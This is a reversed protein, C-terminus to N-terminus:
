LSVVFVTKCICYLIIYLRAYSCNEAQAGWFSISLSLNNVTWFTKWVHPVYVLVTETTKYKNQESLSAIKWHTLSDFWLSELQGEETGWSLDEIGQQCRIRLIQTSRRAKLDRTLVLNDPWREKAYWPRVITQFLSWCLLCAEEILEKLVARFGSSKVWCLIYNKMSPTSIPANVNSCIYTHPRARAHTHADTQFISRHHYNM